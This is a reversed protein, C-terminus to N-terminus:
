TNGQLLSRFEHADLDWEIQLDREWNLMYTAKELPDALASYILSIGGRVSTASSCWLEYQTVSLLTDSSKWVQRLFHLLQNYRFTESPPMDLKSISYILTIPGNGNFYQGIRYLGKDLWWRFAKINLGPPFQPKHFIHALPRWVSTLSHRKIYPTM